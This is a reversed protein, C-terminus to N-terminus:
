KQKAMLVVASRGEARYADSEVVSAVKPKCFDDPSPLATDAIRYWHEQSGLLPLEFNLPEWYANLIIHLHEGRQPHRM